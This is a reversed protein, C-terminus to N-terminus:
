RVRHATKLRPESFCISHKVPPLKYFLAGGYIFDRPNLLPVAIVNDPLRSLIDEMGCVFAKTRQDHVIEKLKAKEKESFNGKFFIEMTAAMM